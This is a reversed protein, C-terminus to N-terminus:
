RRSARNREAAIRELRELRAEVDELEWLKRSHEIVIHAARLRCGASAKSDKMIALLTSVAQTCSTQLHAGAESIARRRAQRYEEEFEPEQRMRYATSVSIGAAAAAQELSPQHLLAAIFSETQRRRKSSRQSRKQQNSM